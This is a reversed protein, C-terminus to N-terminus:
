LRTGIGPNKGERHCTVCLKRETHCKACSASGEAEVVSRHTRAYDAPHRAEHCKSCFTKKNHCTLCPAEGGSRVALSHGFPSWDPDHSPPIKRHCEKCFDKPKSHCTMCESRGQLAIPGHADVWKQDHDKPPGKEKHCLQCKNSIRVGDHCRYCLEMPPLSKGSGTRNHVLNVHCDSCSIGKLRIHKPHPIILDGSPTIDRKAIHCSLCAEGSEAILAPGLERVDKGKFLHVFAHQVADIRLRVSSSLEPKAHCTLCAVDAHTSTTWSKYYPKIEHCTNCFFPQATFYGITGLFLAIVFVVGAVRYWLEPRM